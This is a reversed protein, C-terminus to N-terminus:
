QHRNSAPFIEQGSAKLIPQSGEPILVAVGSRGSADGLILKSVPGLRVSFMKQGNQTSVVLGPPFTHLPEVVTEGTSLISQTEGNRAILSIFSGSGDTSCVNVVAEKSPGFLELCAGDNHARLAAVNKASANILRFSHSKLETRSSFKDYSVFFAVALGFCAFFIRTRRLAAKLNALESRLEDLDM